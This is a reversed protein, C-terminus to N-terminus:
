GGKAKREFDAKRKDSIWSLQFCYPCCRTGTRKSDRWRKSVVIFPGDCHPCRVRIKGGGISRVVYVKLTSVFANM